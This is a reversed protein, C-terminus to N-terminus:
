LAACGRIAIPPLAGGPADISNSRIGQSRTDDPWWCYHHAPYSPEQRGSSLIEIVEAVEINVFKLLHLYIKHKMFLKLM